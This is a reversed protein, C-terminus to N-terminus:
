EEVKREAKSNLKFIDECYTSVKCKARVQNWCRNTGFCKHKKAETMIEDSNM